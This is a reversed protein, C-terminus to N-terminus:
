ENELDDLYKIIEPITKGKKSLDNITKNALYKSLGLDELMDSKWGPMEKNLKKVHVSDVQKLVDKIYVELIELWKKHHSIHIECYREGPIKNNECFVDKEEDEEDGDVYECINEDVELVDEGEGEETDTEDGEESITDLEQVEGKSNMEELEEMVDNYKEIIVMDFYGYFHHIPLNDLYDKLNKAHKFKGALRRASPGQINEKAKRIIESYVLEDDDLVTQTAKNEM